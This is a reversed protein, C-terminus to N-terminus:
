KTNSTAAKKNSNALVDSSPITDDMVKPSTFSFDSVSLDSFEPNQQLFTALETSSRVRKGTPTVYYIDMKSYDRRLTMNRKFGNPTKPTNPKDIVWTRSSDYEIDAPDDCSVNPKKNCFFPEEIFKSRIEEFEEQTSIMRWKLCKGCQAAWISVSPNSPKPPKPSDKVM